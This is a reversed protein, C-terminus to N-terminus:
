GSRWYAAYLNPEGIDWWGAAPLEIFRAGNLDPWGEPSLQKGGIAILWPSTLARRGPGTRTLEPPRAQGLADPREDTLRVLHPLRWAAVRRVVAYPGASPVVESPPYINDAMTIMALGDRASVLNIADGVGRAEPQYIFNLNADPYHEAIVDVVVSSPPVVVHVPDAGHRLLYDLGAFCVPRGDRQPLLVKNPLRTANGGALLIGIM